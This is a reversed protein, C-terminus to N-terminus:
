GAGRRAVAYVRRFPLVTGFSQEPYAQRLLQQYETVFEERQDEALAQLVPRAGTGSIWEFVPDPGPLVHLYTTEWAQVSCGLTALDTLYTGADFACPLEVDRTSEAFRPDAALRRLLQHSPAGFNGPVQFALWGEIALSGVLRPLLRRHDSVWQLMANSVIVDVPAQPEWDNVDAVRFSLRASEHVAAATVMDPSADIGEVQADPWREALAATLQGPGCGLDAVRDPAAAGVRALLDFFPRSREDAYRLYTAPDWSAM